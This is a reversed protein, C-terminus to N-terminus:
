REQGYATDYRVPRDDRGPQLRSDAADDGPSDGGVRGFPRGGRELQGPLDLFEGQRVSGALGDACSRPPQGAWTGRDPKREPLIALASSVPRSLRRTLRPRRLPLM